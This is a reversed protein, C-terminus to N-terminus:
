IIESENFDVSLIHEHGPCSCYCVYEGPFGKGSRLYKCCEGCKSLEDNENEENMADWFAQEALFAEEGVCKKYEEIEADIEAKAVEDVEYFECNPM